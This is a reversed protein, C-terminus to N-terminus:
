GLSYAAYYQLNSLDDLIYQLYYLFLISWILWKNSSTSSDELNWSHVTDHSRSVTLGTKLYKKDNDYSLENM